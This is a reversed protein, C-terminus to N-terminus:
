TKDALYEHSLLSLIHLSQYKGDYFDCERLTGELIFGESKYLEFASTNYTIADLWLRHFQLNEFTLRKVAQLIKRGIGKGKDYVVIRAFELSKNPDELGILIINAVPVMKYDIMLHAVNPNNIAQIHTNWAWDTVFRRELYEYQMVLDLDIEATLRTQFEKNHEFLKVAIEVKGLM